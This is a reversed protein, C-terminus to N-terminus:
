LEGSVKDRVEARAGRNLLAEVVDVHAKKVAILLPTLAEGQAPLVSRQSEHERM